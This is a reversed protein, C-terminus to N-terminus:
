FNELENPKIHQLHRPTFRVNKSLVSDGLINHIGDISSQILGFGKVDFNENITPKFYRVLNIGSIGYSQISYYVETKSSELEASAAIVPINRLSLGKKIKKFLYHVSYGLGYVLSDDVIKTEIFYANYNAENKGLTLGGFGPVKIGQNKSGSFFQVVTKMDELEERTSPISTLSELGKNMNIPKNYLEDPIEYLSAIESDLIETELKDGTTYDPAQQVNNNCSVFFLMAGLTPIALFHKLIKM